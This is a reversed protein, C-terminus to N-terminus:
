NKILRKTQKKGDTTVITINYIGDSYDDIAVDMSTREGNPIGSFLIKGDLSTIVIDMIEETAAITIISHAPNPTIYFKSRFNDNLINEKNSSLNLDLNAYRSGSNLDCPNVKATFSGMNTGSIDFGPQLIIERGSYIVQTNDYIVSSATINNVVRFSESATVPLSITLSDLCSKCVSSIMARVSPTTPNGDIYERIRIGQGVTFGSLCAAGTTTMPNGTHTPTLSVPVGLNDTWSGLYECTSPDIIQDITASNAIADQWFSIMPPTDHILDGTTLANYNPDNEDRTVHENTSIGENSGGWVHMMGFDHALEHALYHGRTLGWTGLISAQGVVLKDSGYNTVGGVGDSLSRPLYVNFCNPVVHGNVTAYNTIAGLSTNTYLNTNNINGYGHLVFCIGMPRFKENIVDVNLQIDQVTVNYDATGDTRNIIWFHINFSIPPFTELHELDHSGSYVATSISNPFTAASNQMEETIACKFAEQTQAFCQPFICICFFSVFLIKYLNKM